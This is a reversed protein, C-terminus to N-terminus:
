ASWTAADLAFLQTLQRQGTPTVSVGRSGPQRRVWDRALCHTLLAAGVRGAVHPRRESWDLCPRCFVRRGSSGTGSELVISAGGLFSAGSATLVGGDAGFELDGRALMADTIAVAVRGALHDYCTRAHRLARDRPGSRLTRQPVDSAGAAVAMMGELMQAIAPSALRHYRHRGQRAVTLVGATVLQALHSSATQPTVGACAALESATLARGDMLALLMGARAPDGVLAGLRAFANTTLM